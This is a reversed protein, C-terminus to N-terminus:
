RVVIDAKDTNETNGLAQTTIRMPDVGQEILKARIQLARSLSIRRAASQEEPKGTAYTVVRVQAGSAKLEKALDNIKKQMDPDVDTKDKLFPLSAKVNGGEPEVKVARAVSAPKPDAAGPLSPLPAPTPLSAVVTAAPAEPTAVAATPKPAEKKVEVPAPPAVPTPPAVPPMSSGPEGRTIKPMADSVPKAPEPPQLSATRIGESDSAIAISSRQNDGTIASLSPLPEAPTRSLTPLPPLAPSPAPVAPAPVAVPPNVPPVAVPKLPAANAMTKEPPLLAALPDQSPAAPQAAVVPAPTSPLVMPKAVPAPPVVVPVTEVPKAAPVIEVPKAVPKIPNELPLPPPLQRLSEPPAKENLEKLSMQAPKDVLGRDPTQPLPITPASKAAIALKDVMSNPKPMEVKPAEAVPKAEPTAPVAAIVPKPAPKPEAVPKPVPPQNQPQGTVSTRDSIVGQKEPEKVFISAARESLNKFAPDDQKIASAPVAAPAVVSPKQVVLTPQQPAPPLAPTLVPAPVAPVPVPVPATANVPPLLDNLASASPAHAPTQVAVATAPMAPLPALKPYAEAQVGPVPKKVATDLSNLVSQEAPTVPPVRPVAVAATAAGTASGPKSLDAYSKEVPAPAQVKPLPAVPPAIPKVVELPPKAVEAVARPQPVPAQMPADQPRPPPVYAAVPMVAPAPAPAVAQPLPATMPPLPPPLAISRPAATAAQNFSPLPAAATVPAPAPAYQLQEVPRQREVAMQQTQMPAAQPLPQPKPATPAALVQGSPSMFPQPRLSELAGLNVEVSPQQPVLSRAQVSTGAALALLCSTGLLLQKFRRTYHTSFLANNHM